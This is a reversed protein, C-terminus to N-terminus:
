GSLAPAWRTRCPAPPSPAPPRPERLCGDAPPARRVRPMRAAHPTPAVPRVVRKLPYGPDGAPHTRRVAVHFKPSGMRRFFEWAKTVHADMDLVGTRVAVEAVAKAAAMRCTTEV